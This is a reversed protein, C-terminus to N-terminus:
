KTLKCYLSAGLSLGEAASHICMGYTAVSVQSSGQDYSFSQLSEKFMKSVAEDVLIMVSFGALLVTGIALMTDKAFGQLDPSAQAISTMAEPFLVLMLVGLLNGAGFTSLFQLLRANTFYQPLYGMFFTVLVMGTM